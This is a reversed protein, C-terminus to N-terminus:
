DENLVIYIFILTTLTPLAFQTLLSYLHKNLVYLLFSISSIVGIPIYLVIYIAMRRWINIGFQTWAVPYDELSPTQLGLTFLSGTIWYTIMSIFVTLVSVPDIFLSMIIANMAIIPTFLITSALTKSFVIDRRRIPLTYLIFSRDGEVFILSPSSLTSVIYSLIGTYGLFISRQLISMARISILISKDMISVIFPIFMPVAVGYFQKLRSSDRVILLLDKLGITILRRHNLDFSRSKSEIVTELKLNFRSPILTSLIIGTLTYTSAIIISSFSPGNIVIDLYPFPFLLKFSSILRKAESIIRFSLMNFYLLLVTVLILIYIVLSVISPVRGSMKSYLILAIPYVLLMSSAFLIPIVIISYITNLYMGIILGTTLGMGILQAFGGGILISYSAAKEIDEKPIPLYELKKMLQLERLSAVVANLLEVILILPIMILMSLYSIIFLMFLDEGVVRSLFSLLPVWITILLGAGLGGIFWKLNYTLVTDNINPIFIDLLGGFKVFGGTRKTFSLYIAERIFLNAISYVLSGLDM